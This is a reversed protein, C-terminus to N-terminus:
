SFFLKGKSYVYVGGSGGDAKNHLDASSWARCLPAFLPKSVLILKYIYGETELIDFTLTGDSAEPIEVM